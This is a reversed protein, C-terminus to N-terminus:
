EAASGLLRRVQDQEDAIAEVRSLVETTSSAVHVGPLGVLRRAWDNSTIVLDTLIVPRGHAVALRAQIRAGSKEGAEVVVTARGFGSMVANRLPFQHPRPPADPWFQSLVLGEAAVRDQLARNQPPYCRTIGTGIVAVTRGGADLAATHAAADIGAALGSVVSVGRDVLGRALVGALQLGRVSAARSGVVSVGFEDTRLTGRHFLVPPLEHIERLQTPYDDDLVTLLGLGAAQWREVDRRADGLASPQEDVSFLDAQVQERWVATASRREVVESAIQQWTLGGPRTRLLAVLVAREAEDDSGPQVPSLSPTSGSREATRVSTPDIDFVRELKATPASSNGSEPVHGDGLHM